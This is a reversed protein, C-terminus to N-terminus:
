GVLEALQRRAAAMSGSEHLELAKALIRAQRDTFVVPSGPPYNQRDPFRGLIAQGLDPLGERTLASVNHRELGAPLSDVDLRVPLDCKNVVLIPVRPQLSEIVAPEDASVDVSGDLVILVLDADSVVRWTAEVGKMEVVGGRRRLGATDILEIPYGGLVIFENIFDRTTGPVPSVITRNHGVLANFLTSKGVNPRGVVALRRPRVLARGFVASDILKRLEESPDAPGAQLAEIARSLAGNLQDCLVRVALRTEALPLSRMADAQVRDLGLDAAARAGFEPAPLEAAGFEALLRMVEGAAVIGGHCNVEVAESGAGGVALRVIVEDVLDDGDKVHGYHLTGPPDATWDRGSKPRFIGAVVDAAGEGRVEVVAIGGSGPPTVLSAVAGKHESNATM